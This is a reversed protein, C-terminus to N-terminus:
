AARDRELGAARRAAFKAGLRHGLSISRTEVTEYIFTAVILTAALSLPWILWLPVKGLLVYVLSFYVVAHFLYVSFSIRGLWVLVSNGLIRAATTSGVAIGIMLAAGITIMWDDLVRAHTRGIIPHLGGVYPFFWWVYTYALLASVLIGFKVSQAARSWLQAIAYRHKALVAGVFFMPVYELTRILDSSGLSPGGLSCAIALILVARWDLRTAVVAIIPFILSIRMEYVLSWLVPDYVGNPFIGVLTLHGILLQPSMPTTWVSNFWPSLGPIGHKSLIRWMVIAAIVATLYPLYIRCVRKIAFARYTPPRDYFPISLVFGSLVFFFIVAETGSWIGHLPTFILPWLPTPQGPPTRNYIPVIASYIAPLTLLFHHFVVSVAALGRLSDLAVLRGKV